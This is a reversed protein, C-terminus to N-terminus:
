TETPLDGLFPVEVLVHPPPAIAILANLANADSQIDKRVSELASAIIALRNLSEHLHLTLDTWTIRGTLSAGPANLEQSLNSTQLKVLQEQVFESFHFTGARIGAQVWASLQNPLNITHLGM